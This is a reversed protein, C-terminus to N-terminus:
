IHLSGSVSNGPAVPERISLNAFQSDLDRSKSRLHAHASHKQQQQQYLFQLRGLERGLGNQELHKILQEQCLNDLRQKLATNEMALILIQQNLYELQASAQSGEVQLIQVSRELESIYQLKRARSRNAMQQKARKVDTKYASPNANWCDSRASEETDEPNQKVSSAKSLLGNPEQPTCSIGSIQLALSDRSCTVSTLSSEWTRNQQKDFSSPNTYIYSKWFDECHGINQSQSSPGATYGRCKYKEKISKAATDLCAVSDSSSRRHGKRVPTEPEDLLEELWSPQEEIVFSDSSARHHHVEGETPKFSHELGVVSSSIYDACFDFQLPSKPPLPTQRGLHVLNSHDSSRNSDEM